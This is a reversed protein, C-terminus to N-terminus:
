STNIGAKIICSYCFLVPLIRYIDDAPSKKNKSETNKVDEKYYLVKRGQEMDNVIDTDQQNIENGAEDFM